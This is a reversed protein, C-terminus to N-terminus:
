EVEASRTVAFGIKARLNACVKYAFYYVAPLLMRTIVVVFCVAWTFAAAPM